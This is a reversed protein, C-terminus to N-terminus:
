TPGAEANRTFLVDRGVRRWQLGHERSLAEAWEGVASQEGESTGTDAGTHVLVRVGSLVVRLIEQEVAEREKGYTLVRVLRSKEEAASM